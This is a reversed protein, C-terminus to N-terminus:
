KLIYMEQTEPQKKRKRNNMSKVLQDAVLRLIAPLENERLKYRPNRAFFYMLDYFLSKKACQSLWEEYEKTM